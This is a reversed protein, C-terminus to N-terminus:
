HLQGINYVREELLIIQGYSFSNYVDSANPTQGSQMEVYITWIQFDVAGIYNANHFLSSVFFWSTDM